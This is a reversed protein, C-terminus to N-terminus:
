IRTRGNGSEKNSRRSRQLHGRDANFNATDGIRGVSESGDIAAGIEKTEIEVRFTGTMDGFGFGCLNAPLKRFLDFGHSNEDVCRRSVDSCQALRQVEIRGLKM